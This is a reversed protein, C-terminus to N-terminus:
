EGVTISGILVPRILLLQGEEGVEEAIGLGRYTGAEEPLVRVKGADTATTVGDALVMVDGPNCTGKLVVRINRGAEIPRVDVLEGDAAGELVVYPVHDDNATPLLVEAVGTDHSMKVLRGDLDTLLEGALVSFDGVRTNSQKASM